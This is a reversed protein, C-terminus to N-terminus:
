KSAAADAQIQEPTRAYDYIAVDMMEGGFPYAYGTRYAGITLFKDLTTMELGEESKAVPEGNIYILFQKKEPNFVAAIHTWDYPSIATELKSVIGWIDAHLGGPGSLFDVNHNEAHYSVAIGPGRDASRASFIEVSPLMWDPNPKIRAQLTIGQPFETPMGDYVLCPLSLRDHSETATPSFKIAKKGDRDSKVIEITGDGQHVAFTGSLTGENAIINKGDTAQMMGDELGLAFIPPSDTQAIATIATLLLITLLTKM